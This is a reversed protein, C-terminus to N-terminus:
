FWGRKNQVYTRVFDEDSTSLYIVGEILGIIGAIGCTLIGIILQIVGEATYGLIFKHIGLSGLLIACIAAPVKKDAGLARWNTLAPRYAPAPQIPEHGPQLSNVAPLRAQCSYCVQDWDNNPLGCRACFVAM